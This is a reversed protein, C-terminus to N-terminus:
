SRREGVDAKINERRVRSRKHHFLRGHVVQQSEVAGPVERTILKEFAEKQQQRKDQLDQHLRGDSAPGLILGLRLPSRSNKGTRDALSEDRRRERQQKSENADNNALWPASFQCKEEM